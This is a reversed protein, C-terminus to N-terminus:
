LAYVAALQKAHSRYRPPLLCATKANDGELRVIESYFVGKGVSYQGEPLTLARPPLVLWLRYNLVLSGQDDRSLTGYTRAPVKNIKCGLFLPNSKTDPTFRASRFTFLAWLLYLGFHTLRFSWGGIFYSILIIAMAWAAGIWPNM